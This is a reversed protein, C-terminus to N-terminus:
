ERISPSHFRLSLGFIPVFGSLNIWFLQSHTEDDSNLFLFAIEETQEADYKNTKLFAPSNM